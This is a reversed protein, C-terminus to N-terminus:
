FGPAYRVAVERSWADNGDACATLLATSPRGRAVRRITARDTVRVVLATDGVAFAQVTSDVVEATMPPEGQVRAVHPRAHALIGSIARGPDPQGAPLAAHVNVAHWPEDRDLRVTWAYRRGGAGGGACAWSTAAAAPFRVLLEEHGVSVEADKVMHEGGAMARLVNCGGAFLASLLCACVLGARRGKM